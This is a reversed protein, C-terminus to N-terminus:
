PCTNALFATGTYNGFCNVTGGSNSTTGALKSAGVTVTANSNGLWSTAGEIRCNSINWNTTFATQVASGQAIIIGGLLTSSGLVGAAVAVIPGNTYIESNRPGFGGGGGSQFHIGFRSRGGSVYFRSNTIALSSGNCDLGKAIGAPDPTSAHVQVGDLRVESGNSNVMIAEDDFAGHATFESDVISFGWDGMTYLCWASSATHPPSSANLAVHSFDIGGAPPAIFDAIAFANGSSNNVTLRSLRGYGGVSVTAAGSYESGTATTVTTDQGAGEIATYAPLILSGSGLDFLGPGVKVLWPNSASPAEPGSSPVAAVLGLLETGSNVDSNTEAAQHHFVLVTHPPWNATGRMAKELFVALQDRTVPTSPCYLGGGCGATIGDLGFQEIWPDFGTTCTIDSVACWARM